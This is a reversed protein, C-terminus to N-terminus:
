MTDCRMIPQAARTRASWSCRASGVRVEEALRFQKETTAIEQHGACQRIKLMAGSQPSLMWSANADNRRRM